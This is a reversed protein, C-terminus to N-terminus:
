EPLLVIKSKVQSQSGILVIQYVGASQSTLDIRVNNKGAIAQVKQELVMEGVANFCRCVMTETHASSFDLAVVDKVPNPYLSMGSITSVEDISIYIVNPNWHGFNYSPKGGAQTFLGGVWVDPGSTAIAYVKDNVGSGLPDWCCDFKCINQSPVLSKNAGVFVDYQGYDMALIAESVGGDIAAWSTGNFTALYNVTLGGAHIFDGAVYVVAGKNDLDMVEGDTGLGCPSWISDNWMAINSMSDAGVTSFYGGVYINKGYATLANVHTSWGNGGVGTDMANWQAGDWKAVFGCNTVGGIANFDGGAYVQGDVDVALARVVDIAGTGLAHWTAGDWRAINSAVVLGASYFFGGVYVDSGYVAIANVVPLVGGSSVGEGLAHWQTGDWRAICSAPVNGAKTFNGGVYVGDDGIAIAHVPGNVSNASDFALDWHEDGSVKPLTEIQANAMAASLALLVFLLINKM